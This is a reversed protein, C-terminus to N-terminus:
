ISLIKLLEDIGERLLQTLINRHNLKVLCTRMNAIRQSPWLVQNWNALRRVTRLQIGNLPDPLEDFSLEFSLAKSRKLL